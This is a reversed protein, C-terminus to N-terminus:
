QRRPHMHPTVGRAKAMREIVASADEEGEDETETQQRTAATPVSPLTRKRELKEQARSGKFGPFARRLEADISKYADSLKTTPAEQKMEQLRSRFLRGMWPDKLLDASEAELAALETRFSMRQDLAQLVDQHSPRATIAKALKATAEEDGLAVAALLKRVEEEQLSASEDKSLVLEGASRAAEKATKLYEDAAEVKGASERLEKLTQWKERGNVINLYYRVGDVVKEDPSVSYDGGGEVDGRRIHPEADEGGGEEQLKRAAAQAEERERELGELDDRSDESADAIQEMLKLRGNNQSQNAEAAKKLAEDHMEKEDKNM